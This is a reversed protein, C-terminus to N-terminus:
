LERLLLQLTVGIPHRESRVESFGLERYLSRAAVMLDSTQLGIGPRAEERARDVCAKTLARGVGRHRASPPVALTRIFAYGRPVGAVSGASPMYCVAGVVLGDVEAVLITGADVRSGVDLLDAQYQAWAGPPLQASFEAYALLTLGAVLPMEERQMQRVTSEDQPGAVLERLVKLSRSAPVVQRSPWAKVQAEAWTSWRGLFVAYDAVFRADLAIVHLRDPFPGHGPALYGSAQGTVRQRMAEAQDRLQRINGLLVKRPAAEPFSIRVMAESEFQPAASEQALWDGLAERGSDTIAYVTRPHRGTNEKTARALGHAVLTRPEEYIASTARPWIYGLSRSMQQALEYGTWPRLYLLGLIAFSTTTLSRPKTSMEEM